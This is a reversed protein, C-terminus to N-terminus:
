LDLALGNLALKSPEKVTNSQTAQDIQYKLGPSYNSTRERPLTLKLRGGSTAAPLPHSASELIIASHDQKNQVNKWASKAMSTACHNVRKVHLHM